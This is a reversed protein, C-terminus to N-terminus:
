YFMASIIIHSNRPEFRSLGSPEAEQRKSYKTGQVVLCSVQSGQCLWALSDRLPVQDVTRASGLSGAIGALAYSMNTLQKPGELSYWIQSQFVTM